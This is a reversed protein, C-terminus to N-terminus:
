LWSQYPVIDNLDDILFKFYLISFELFFLFLLFLKNKKNKVESICNSILVILPPYFYQICRNYLSFSVALIQFFLVSLALDYDISHKNISHRFLVSIELFVIVFFVLLAVGTGSTYINTYDNRQYLRLIKNASLFMIPLVILFLFFKIFIRQNNKYKILPVYILCLIATQHFSVAILIFLFFVFYKEKKLFMLGIICFSVAISERFITFNFGLYGVALYLVISFSYYNTNKYVFICFVTINFFYILNRFLIFSDSFSGVVKNLLVYGVDKNLHIADQISMNRFYEFGNYKYRFVDVGLLEARFCGIALLLTAGFVLIKIHSHKSDDEYNVFKLEYVSFIMMGLYLIIYIIM